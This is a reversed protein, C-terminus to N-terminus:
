IEAITLISYSLFLPKGTMIGYTIYMTIAGTAFSSLLLGLFALLTGLLTSVRWGIKEILPLM